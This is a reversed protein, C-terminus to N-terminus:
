PVLWRGLSAPQYVEANLWAAVLLHAHTRWTLAPVQDQQPDDAPLLRRIRRALGLPTIALQNVVYLRRAAPEHVLHVGARADAVLIELGSVAAISPASIRWDRAVPIEVSDEQSAILPSGTAHVHHPIVGALPRTLHEAVVRHHRQLAERASGGIFLQAPVDAVEPLEPLSASASWAVLGDWPGGDSEWGVEVQLPSDSLLALLGNLAEGGTRDGDILLLRVPRIEQRAATHPDLISVSGRLADHEPAPALILPM